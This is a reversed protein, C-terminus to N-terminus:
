QDDVISSFNSSTLSSTRHNWNSDPELNSFMGLVVFGQVSVFGKDFRESNTKDKQQRKALAWTEQCTASQGAPETISGAAQFLCSEAWAETQVLEPCTERKQTALTVGPTEAVRPCCCCLGLAARTCSLEIVEDEPSPHSRLPNIPPNTKAKTLLSFIIPPEPWLNGDNHHDDRFLAEAWQRLQDAVELEAIQLRATRVACDVMYVSVRTQETNLSETIGTEQSVKGKVRHVSLRQWGVHKPDLMYAAAHIPQICFELCRDLSPM